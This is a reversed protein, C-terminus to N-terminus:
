SHQSYGEGSSRLLRGSLVGIRGSLMRAVLFWVLVAVVLSGGFVGAMTLHSQHSIAQIRDRAEFVEDEYAGIGIVWDWPEFYMLKAVKYRAAKEGANKWPYRQEAIQGPTLATAKACIEQISYVGNADQAQSIDEGDRKGQYSILYHGRNDLIYAYGTAGVRLDLIMQRM